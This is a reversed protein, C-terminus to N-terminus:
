FVRVKQIETEDVVFGDKIYDDEESGDEDEDDQRLFSQLRTLSACSVYENFEACLDADSRRLQHSALRPLCERSRTHCLGKWLILCYCTMPGSVDDDEEGSEEAADEIFMNKIRKKPREEGNDDDDNLERAKGSM